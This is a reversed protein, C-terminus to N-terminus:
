AKSLTFKDITRRLAEVVLSSQESDFRVEKILEVMKGTSGDVQEVTRANQENIVAINGIIDKMQDTVDPQSDSTQAMSVLVNQVNHVVDVGSAVEQSSDGIASRVRASSHEIQDLTDSIEKTARTTQDALKRIELAVVGFGKGYEGARAAEIAANLALLNTQYAIENITGVISNISDSLEKFQDTMTMAENVKGVIVDMKDNIGAVENQAHEIQDQSQQELGSLTSSVHDVQGMAQKVDKVQQQIAELMESMQEIVLISDSEAFGAKERLSQNTEEVDLAAAKVKGMLEDQSDILNNVWRGLAGTEDHFLLKSDLRSTLDGGGEAIERTIDTMKRLREIIPQLSKKYFITSAGAGYALGIIVDTWVPMFPLMTFSQQLLIGIFLFFMFQKILRWGISRTRYVEELDGECMMGWTDSSGPMQFTVGKGIVPIHRYDSYGPFEVFLNSGNRITNAVGPHLENTAPDTFRIEFETHNQIRVSGGNKTHIGDKLNEGHTFTRDEFRSRSLATGPAISPNFNSKAMFLYNDGSDPYIHGAERQILDGLVDNPIRAAILRKVRGGEMVPQLFLLTVDDHFHSSGPGIKGTDPDTYPGFLFPKQQRFAEVAAKYIETGSQKGARGSFTSYDISCTDDLIFLETIYRNKKLKKMLYTNKENPLIHLWEQSMQQLFYWQEEAWETLLTMRTRAIGEFVEEVSEKTGRNLRYSWWLPIGEKVDLWGFM